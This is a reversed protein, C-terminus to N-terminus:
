ILCLEIIRKSKQLYSTTEILEPPWQECDGAGSLFSVEGLFVYNSASTLGPFEINFYSSNVSMFSVYLKVLYECSINGLLFTEKINKGFSSNQREPRFSIDSYINIRSAHIGVEPCNFVALEMCDYLQNEVEFSLVIQLYRHQRMTLLQAARSDNSVKTLSPIIGDNLVSTGNCISGRYIGNQESPGPILSSCNGTTLSGFMSVMRFTPLSHRVPVSM